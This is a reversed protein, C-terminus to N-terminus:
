DQLMPIARTTVIDVGTGLVDSAVLQHQGVPAQLEVTRLYAAVDLLREKPLPGNSRVPALALSGHCVRVTTTLVRKPASLEEDVFARGRNCAQGQIEVLKGDEIRARISCGVPCVVCILDHYEAM